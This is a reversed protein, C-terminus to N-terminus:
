VVVGCDTEIPKKMLRVACILSLSMTVSFTRGDIDLMEANFCSGLGSSASDLISFRTGCIRVRSISDIIRISLPVDGNETPQHFVPNIVLGPAEGTQAINRNEALHSFLRELAEFFVSNTM